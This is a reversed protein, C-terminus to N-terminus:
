QEGESEACDSVQLSPKGMFLILLSKWYLPLHTKLAVIRNSKFHQQLIYRSRLTDMDLGIKALKKKNQNISPIDTKLV